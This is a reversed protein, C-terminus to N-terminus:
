KGRKAKFRGAIAGAVIPTAIAIAAMGIGPPPAIGHRREEGSERVVVAVPERREFHLGGRGARIDIGRVRVLAEVTRHPTRSLTVTRTEHLLRMTTPGIPLPTNRPIM